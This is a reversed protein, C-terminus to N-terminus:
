WWKRKARHCFIHRSYMLRTSFVILSEQSDRSKRPSKWIRQKQTLHTQQCQSVLISSVSCLVDNHKGDNSPMESWRAMTVVRESCLLFWMCQCSFFGRLLAANSSYGYSLIVWSNHGVSDHPFCSLLITYAFFDMPMQPDFSSITKKKIHFSQRRTKKTHLNITGPVWM